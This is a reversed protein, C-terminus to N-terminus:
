RYRVEVNAIVASGGVGAGERLESDIRGIGNGDGLDPDAKQTLVDARGVSQVANDDLTAVCGVDNGIFRQELHVYARTSDAFELIKFWPDM